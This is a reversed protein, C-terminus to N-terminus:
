WGAGTARWLLLWPWLHAREPVMPPRRAVFGLPRWTRWGTRGRGGRLQGSVVGVAPWRRWVLYPREPVMLRRCAVSGGVLIHMWAPPAVAGVAADRLWLSGPSGPMVQRSPFWAWGWSYPSVLCGVRAVGGCRVGAFSGLGPGGLRGLEVVGFVVRRTWVCGGALLGGALPLVPWGLAGDAGCGVLGASLPGWVRAM